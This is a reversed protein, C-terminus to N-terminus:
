VGPPLLSVPQMDGAHHLLPVPYQDELAGINVGAPIKLAPRTQAYRLYDRDHNQFPRQQGSFQSCGVLSVLMLASLACGVQKVIM